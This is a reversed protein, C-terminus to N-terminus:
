VLAINFLLPKCNLKMKFCYIIYTYENYACLKKSFCSAASTSSETIFKRENLILLSSQKWRKWQKRNGRREFVLQKRDLLSSRNDLATKNNLDYIVRCQLVHQQTFSESESTAVQQRFSPVCRNSFSASIRFWDNQACNCSKIWQSSDKPTHITTVPAFGPNGPRRFWVLGSSILVKGLSAWSKTMLRQPQSDKKLLDFFYM